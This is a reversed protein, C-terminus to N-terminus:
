QRGEQEKIADYIADALLRHGTENLHGYGIGTNAFGSPLVHEQGYLEQIPETMDVFIVGQTECLVAFQERTGETATFLLEGQEDLQMEPIYYIIARCGYERATQAVYGLLQEDMLVTEPTLADYGEGAPTEEAEQNRYNSYQQYLLKLYPNTQVADLLSSGTGVSLEPMTHNLAQQLEVSDYSLVGTELAVYETPGYIELATELNSVNRYITHASMGINYVYRDSGDEAFYENLRYSACADDDVYLGETQSSGMMLIAVERGEAPYSNNYGKEDTHGMAFGETGRAWFTDPVRTYGTAGDAAATHVPPNYYLVCFLSLIVFATVGAAMAKLCWIGTKRAM